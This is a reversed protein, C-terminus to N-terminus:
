DDKKNSTDRIVKIMMAIIVLLPFIWIMLPTSTKIWNDALKGLFIFLAIGAILQWAFSLYQMLLNNKQPKKDMDEIM